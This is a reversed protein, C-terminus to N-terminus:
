PTLEFYEQVNEKSVEIWGLDDNELRVEGGVLRYDENEPVCWITENEIIMEDLFGDEDETRFGDGDYKPISFSKICKYEKMVRVGERKDM